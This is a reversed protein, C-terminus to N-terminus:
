KVLMMKMTKSYGQTNLQYFYIGSTLHSANFTLANAGVSAEIQKEFVSRGLMDFVKITALGAQKMNFSITTSPNFPNPYNQYLAYANAKTNVSEVLSAEVTTEYEHQLGSYDVSILKYTYTQGLEVIQDAYNYQHAELSTGQGKLASHSEYSAIQLGDRMLIFGLNDTETQTAWNLNISSESAYATFKSIEVPLPNDNGGGLTIDSFGSLGTVTITNPCDDTNLEAELDVVVDEWISSSNDRKLVHLTSCNEIGPVASIDITISYTGDANGSTETVTWYVPSLNIIGSPLSNVINPTAETKLCALNIDGSNGIIFQVIVGASAFNYSNLDGAPISAVEPQQISSVGSLILSFDQDATLSGNHDIYITYYGSEPNQITVKEVNDVNNEGSNTAANSPNQWDLSWPYYTTEDKVVRINLDHVLVPNRIQNLYEVPTGPVDTWSLTANFDESGDSYVRLMTTQGDSLTNETILDNLTNDQTILNAATEANLLGWGFQYDPGDDNGAEDATHIVLGKLTAAKMFEGNLQNYYEQLLALTGTANPAAMSTGSSTAYYNTVSPDAENYYSSLLGEGNAVIDPKIRGDDAPGWSSYSEMAVGSPNTYGSTLDGVAGVTLINKAVGKSGICDYGDSGGDKERYATSWEWDVLSANLAYHGQTGDYEDNRDNGASKVILYGPANYAITDLLAADSTYMGFWIDEEPDVEPYGYWYWNGDNSNYNWGRTYGYSHNSLIMGSAAATAMEAEDNTWDYADLYAQYAMGKAQSYMGMAVMTGAVHTSHWNLTGEGDRDIVRGNLEQHTTLVDGGDWEGLFGSTITSGTLNLGTTGGPWLQNTSVSAAANLNNTIYYMPRGNEDLGQLEMIRGDSFEQRIVWGNQQAKQIAQARSLKYSQKLEQAMIQLQQKNIKQASVANIQLILGLFILLGKKM